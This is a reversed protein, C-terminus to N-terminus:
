TKVNIKALKLDRIHDLHMGYHAISFSFLDCHEPFYNQSYLLLYNLILTQCALPRM